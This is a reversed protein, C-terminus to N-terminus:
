WAKNDRAELIRNWIEPSSSEWVGGLLHRFAPNQRAELEIEDIFRDGHYHILDELPGAALIGLVAEDPERHLINLIAKWCLDPHDMELDFFKQIAWHNEDDNKASQSNQAAIYGDVWERMEDTSLHM